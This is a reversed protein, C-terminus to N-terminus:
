FDLDTSMYRNDSYDTVAAGGGPVAPIGAAALVESVMAAPSRESRAPRGPAPLSM